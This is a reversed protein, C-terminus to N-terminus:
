QRTFMAPPCLSTHVFGTGNRSHMPHPVAPLPKDMPENMLLKYYAGFHLAGMQEESMAHDAHGPSRNEAPLNSVFLRHPAASPSLLLRKTAGGAVPIIDIVIADADSQLTWQVTDTLPQPPVRPSGSGKFEFVESRHAEHSPMSAQLLGADLYIRAAVSRPLDKPMAGDTATLGPDIRGDGVLAKMDPVFRLDRWSAPDAVDRPATPWSTDDKSPRFYQVGAAAEGGQARIRVETGTLDWLGLQDGGSAQGPASTVVRTPGSSAPNALDRLSVVLTPAHEPLAVGGVEGIGRADVLLIEGPKGDGNGIIACLGTFAISLATSM